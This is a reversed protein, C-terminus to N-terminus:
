RRRPAARGRRSKSPDRLAGVNRQTALARRAPSPMQRRRRWRIASGALLVLGLTLFPMESWSNTIHSTVSIALAIGAREVTSVYLLSDLFRVASGIWENTHPDM